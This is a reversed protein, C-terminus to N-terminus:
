CVISFRRILVDEQLVPAQCIGSGVVDIIQSCVTDNFVQVSCNSVISMTAIYGLSGGNLIADHCPLTGNGSFSTEVGTCHTNQYLSIEWTTNPAIIRNQTYPFAHAPFLIALTSLLLNMTNPEAKHISTRQSPPTRGHSCQYSPPIFTYTQGEAYAVINTDRLRHSSPSYLLFVDILSPDNDISFTSDSVQM